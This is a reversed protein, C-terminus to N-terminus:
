AAKSEIACMVVDTIEFGHYINDFTVWPGTDDIIIRIGSLFNVFDPNRSMDRLIQGTDEEVGCVVQSGYEVLGSVDGADDGWSFLFPTVVDGSSALIQWRFDSRQKFPELTVFSPISGKPGYVFDSVGLVAESQFRESDDPKSPITCFVLQYKEGDWGSCFEICATVEGKVYRDLANLNLASFRGNAEQVFRAADDIADQHTSFSLLNIVKGKPEIGQWM